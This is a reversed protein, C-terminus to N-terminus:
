VAPQALVGRSFLSTRAEPMELLRWDYASLRKRGEAIAGYIWDVSGGDAITLKAMAAVVQREIWAATRELSQIRAAGVTLVHKSASVLAVWWSAARRRTVDSTEHSPDKFEIWSRFSGVAEDWRDAALLRALADARKGKFEFEFRLYSRDGGSQLGKDYVRLFTESSRSGIEVTGAFGHPTMKEHCALSERNARCMAVGDVLQAKVESLKVSGSLDDLAVDVRTFRAGREIWGSLWAAWTTFGESSEVARCGSGSLVLHVGDFADNVNEWYVSVGNDCTAGQRFRNRGHKLGRFPFSLLEMVQQPTYDPISIALYDIGRSGSIALTSM